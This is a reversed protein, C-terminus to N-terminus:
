GKPADQTAQASRVLSEIGQVAERSRRESIGAYYTATLAFNKHGLVRQAQKLDCGSELILTACSHRLDHPSVEKLEHKREFRRLWTTPSTYPSPEKPNSAKGFIFFDESFEAGYKEMADRRLAELMDILANALPVIRENGSKTEKVFVKPADKDKNFTPSVSKNVILTKKDAKYDTWRLALAECRRLGAFLLANFYCKWFLPADAELADLFARAEDADLFDAETLEPRVVPKENSELADCPNEVIIKDRKAYKFIASLTRLLKAQTEPSYNKETRTWTLFDSVHETTIANLKIREGFYSVLVGSLYKFSHIGNPTHTGNMVHKSWWRGRVYDAFASKDRDVRIGKKLNERQLREWEDAQRRVERLEKAPTLGEPRPLTTTRWTKEGTREDVVCFRARYSVVEAGGGQKPLDDLKCTFQEYGGGRKARHLNVTINM